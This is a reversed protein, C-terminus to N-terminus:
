RMAQFFSLITVFWFETKNLKSVFGGLLVVTAWVFGLTGVSSSASQFFMELLVFWNVEEEPMADGTAGSNLNRGQQSQEQEPVSLTLEGTGNSRPVEKASNM